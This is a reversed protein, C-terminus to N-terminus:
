SPSGGWASGRVRLGAPAPLASAASDLTSLRHAQRSAPVVPRSRFRKGVGSGLKPLYSRVRQTEAKGQTFRLSVQQSPPSLGSPSHPLTQMLGQGAQELEPKQPDTILSAPGAACSQTGRPGAVLPCCSAPWGPGTPGLLDGKGAEKGRREEIVAVWAQPRRWSRAM